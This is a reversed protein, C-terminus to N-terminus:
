EGRDTTDTDDPVCGDQAASRRHAAAAAAKAAFVKVQTLWDIREKPTRAAWRRLQELEHETWADNHDPESM